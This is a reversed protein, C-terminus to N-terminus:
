AVPVPSPKPADAGADFLRGASFRGALTTRQALRHHEVHYGAAAHMMRWNDWIIADDVSWRHKAVFRDQTMHDVLEAFLRDSERTSMGLFYEFDKPSLFLCARGNVPHRTVARHVVPPLKQAAAMSAQFTPVLRENDPHEATTALRATRWLTGPYTETDWHPRFSAKFELHEVRRKLEDPLADYAKATDAFLTEGGEQPAVVARLMGGKSVETLYGGDRHWPLRGNRLEAEDFVYVPSKGDGLTMLRPDEHDRSGPLPHEEVEGFVASLAIHEDVSTVQRFLLMGHELWAASLEAAVAPDSATGPQLDVVAAGVPMPEIRLTPTAM